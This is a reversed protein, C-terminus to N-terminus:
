KNDIPNSPNAENNKVQAKDKSDEGYIKKYTNPDDWLKEENKPTIEFIKKEDLGRSNLFDKFKGMTLFDKNNEGKSDKPRIMGNDNLVAQIAEYDNYFYEQLLPIIKNQFIGKLQELTIIGKHDKDESLFFAHGITKERDYLFEIRDNIARLLNDLKIDIKGKKDHVELKELKTPDSMMEVFEFRRRLATDLSTISRDATNMTGIIYLNNPVGFPKKSYPLVAQLEEDAGIRKSPEILTILEGFIKSINGRNIEDIILIYPKTYYIFYYNMITWYATPPLSDKGVIQAMEKAIDKMTYFDDEKDRFYTFLKTIKDKSISLLKEGNLFRATLTGQQNKDFLLPTREKGRLLRQKNTFFDYFSDFDNKQNALNSITKFIGDEIKYKIEESNGSNNINPKIGEIFEEYGYNQHFTTFKIKGEQHYFDFLTKAKARNENKIKKINQEFKSDLNLHSIASQIKEHDLINLDKIGFGLIELAKDITSYTKGTGPSGYLIQNLSFTKTNIQHASISTRPISMNNGKENKTNSLISHITNIKVINIPNELPLKNTDLYTITRELLEPKELVFYQKEKDIKIIKAKASITQKNKDFIFVIEGIQMNHLPKLNIYQEAKSFTEMSEDISILYYTFRLNYTKLIDEFIANHYGGHDYDNNGSLIKELINESFPSLRKRNATLPQINKENSCVYFDKEEITKLKKIKEESILKKLTSLDQKQCDKYYLLTNKYTHCAEIIRDILTM